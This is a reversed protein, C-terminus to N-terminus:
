GRRDLLVRGADGLTRGRIKMVVLLHYLLDAAENDIRDDTEERAARM